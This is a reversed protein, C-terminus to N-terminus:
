PLEGVSIFPVHFNCYFISANILKSNCFYERRLAKGCSHFNLTAKTGDPRPIHLPLELKKRRLVLRVETEREPLIFVELVRRTPPQTPRSV